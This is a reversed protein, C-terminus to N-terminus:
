RIYASTVVAGNADRGIIFFRDDPNDNTEFVNDKIPVEGFGPYELTMSVVNDPVLGVTRETDATKGFHTTSAMGTTEIYPIKGCNGGHMREILCIKGNMSVVDVRLGSDLTTHGWAAILRPKILIRPTVRKNKSSARRQRMKRYDVSALELWNRLSCPLEDLRDNTMPELISFRDIGYGTDIAHLGRSPYVGWAKEAGTRPCDGTAASARAGGALLVALIVFTALIAASVFMRIVVGSTGSGDAPHNGEGQFMMSESM